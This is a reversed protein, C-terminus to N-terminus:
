RFYVLGKQSKLVLILEGRSTFRYSETDALMQAFVGEQSGECYMLTSLMREFVIKDGSTTYEGGIGNCDTSASFTKADMFTLKFADPKNPSETKNNTGVTRIWQWPKMTLTMKAPDAEGEFNQVVEGFQFRETDLKLWISKGFSPKTVFSEGRARDAYNVLLLGDRIETTQPAIRDGLLVADAGRYGGALQIGATAYFFTGSGGSDATILFGIDDVGDANLDGVAENGFYRVTSKVEPNAPNLIIEGVGNVLRVPKGDLMYEANKVDTGLYVGAGTDKVFTSMAYGILVLVVVVGLSKIMSSINMYYKNNYFKRM